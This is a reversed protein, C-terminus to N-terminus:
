LSKQIYPKRSWESIPTQGILLQLITSDKIKFNDVRLLNALFEKENYGECDKKSFNISKDFLLQNAALTFSGSM